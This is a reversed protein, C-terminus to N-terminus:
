NSPESKHLKNGFFFALAGGAVTAVATWVSLEDNFRMEAGGSTLATLLVLLLKYISIKM